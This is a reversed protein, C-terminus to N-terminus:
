EDDKMIFQAASKIVQVTPLKLKNRQMIRHSRLIIKELRRYSPIIGIRKRICSAEIAAKTVEDDIGAWTQSLIRKMDDPDATDIQFCIGVRSQLQDHENRSNKIGNILRPLGVLVLGSEGENNVVQWLYELANDSLYDAQDIIILMDQQRLHQGIRSTVEASGGKVSLSLEKAIRNKLAHLTTSKNAEIYVVNPKKNAYMTLAVTKGNGAYGTIVAIDKEEFAIDCANHIQNTIDTEIHEITVMEKRRSQRQLYAELRKELEDINGNYQHSLYLSVISGSAYGLENSIKRMSYGSQEIFASLNERLTM